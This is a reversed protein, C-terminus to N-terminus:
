FDFSSISIPVVVSGNNLNDVVKDLYDIYIDDILEVAFGSESSSNYTRNLFALFRWMTIVTTGYGPWKM